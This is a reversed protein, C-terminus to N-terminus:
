PLTIRTLSQEESNAVWAGTADAVISSPGEGAEASALVQRTKQDIITVVHDRRFSSVYVYRGGAAVDAPKAGVDSIREVVDGSGNLVWLSASCPDAIWVLDRYAASGQPCSQGDLQERLDIPRTEYDGGKVVVRWVVGETPQSVWVTGDAAVVNTLGRGLSIRMYEDGGPHVRALDGGNLAVFVGEPAVDVGYPSEGVFTVRQVVEGTRTNTATLEGDPEGGDGGRTQWVRGDEVDLAVGGGAFSREVRGDTIRLLARDRGTTVWLSSDDLALAIPQDGVALTQTEVQLQHPHRDDQRPVEDRAPPQWVVLAALGGVFVLALASGLVASNKRRRRIRRLTHAEHEPHLRAEDAVRELQNRIERELDPM